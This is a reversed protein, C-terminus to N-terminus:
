WPSYDGAESAANREVKENLTDVNAKQKQKKESKQQQLTQKRYNLKETTFILHNHVSSQTHLIVPWLVQWASLCVYM